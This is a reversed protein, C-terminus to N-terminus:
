NVKKDFLAVVSDTVDITKDAYLVSQSGKEVILTFGNEEGYQSVINRMKALLEGVLRANSRRLSDQVDQLSRKLDKEMAILKEEKSVRIERKLSEKQKNFEEQLSELESRKADIEKKASEVEERYQEQARQGAETQELALELDVYGLKFNPNASASLPYLTLNVLSSFVAVLLWYTVPRCNQVVSRVSKSKKAVSLNLNVGFM